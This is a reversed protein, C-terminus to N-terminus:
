LEWWADGWLEKEKWQKYYMDERQKYYMDEDEM